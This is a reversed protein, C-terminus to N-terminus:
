DKWVAVVAVGVAIAVVVGDRRQVTYKYSIHVKHMFHACYRHMSVGHRYGGGRSHEEQDDHYSTLKELPKGV